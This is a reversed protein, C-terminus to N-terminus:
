FTFLIFNIKALNNTRKLSRIKSDVIPKLHNSLQLLKEKLSSEMYTFKSLRTDVAISINKETNNIIKLHDRNLYIM